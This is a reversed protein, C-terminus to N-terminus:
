RLGAPQLEAAADCKAEVQYSHSCGVSAHPEGGCCERAVSGAQAEGRAECLRRGSAHRSLTGLARCHPDAPSQSAEYLLPSLVCNM